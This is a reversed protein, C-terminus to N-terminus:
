YKLKTLEFLKLDVLKVLNFWFLLWQFTECAQHAQHHLFAINIEFVKGVLIIFIDLDIQIM